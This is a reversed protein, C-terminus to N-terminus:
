AAVPRGSRRLARLRASRSPPNRTVEAASPRVVRRTLLQCTGAAAHGRFSRKVMRDEGSHFSLVVLRGGPALLGPATELLRALEGLEDNVAIRLAQFARTAPHLGKRSRTPVAAAVVAALHLTDRMPRAGVVARAIRRSFREDALDYFLNALDREGWRNVLDAAQLEQRRDFRMDLPGQARLSFGRGADDLQTRSLGLDAVIGALPLLHRAAEGIRSFPGHFYEVRDAFEALRARCRELAAEDRDIAVLRSGRARELIRRAHGGSGATCDCYAGPPPTEGADLLYRETEDAMVPFHGDAAQM